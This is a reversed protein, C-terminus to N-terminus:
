LQVSLPFRPRVYSLSRFPEQFDRETQIRQDCDPCILQTNAMTYGDPASYRDLVANKKPLPKKCVACLGGQEKRKRAKLAKRFMPKGREGYVLEKYVKRRYAFLLAADGGALEILRARIDALLRNANALEDTTLIRNAM